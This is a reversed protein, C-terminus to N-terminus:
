LCRPHRAPPPETPEDAADILRDCQDAIQRTTLRGTLLLLRVLEVIAISGLVIGLLLCGVSTM